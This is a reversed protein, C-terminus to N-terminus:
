LVVDVVAAVNVVVLTIIVVVFVFVVVVVVVVVVGVVAAVISLHHFLTTIAVGCFINRLVPHMARVNKGFCSRAIHTVCITLKVLVAHVSTHIKHLNKLQVWAVTSSCAM